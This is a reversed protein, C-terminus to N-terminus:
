SFSAKKWRRWEFLGGFLLGLIAGGVIGLLVYIGRKPAIPSLPMMPSDIVAMGQERVLSVEENNRTLNPQTKNSPLGDYVEIFGEALGFAVKQTTKPNLDRYTLQVSYNSNAPSLELKLGKEIRDLLM